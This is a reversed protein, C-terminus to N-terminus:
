TKEGFALNGADGMGPVILSSVTLEDDVAGLWLTVKKLPLRKCLYNVGEKSAIVSAIHIHVPDGKELLAKVALEISIGSALMPDALILIKGDLRPCSTYEIKVTFTNDKSYKRYSAVFGNEAKDFINLLGQHMPLGARMISAVVLKDSLVPVEAVGLPTEISKKSYNFNKSIEYAFIEGMRELNKRFRMKDQQITTDRLEAIYENFISNQEGLINTM